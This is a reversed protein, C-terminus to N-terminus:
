KRSQKAEVRIKSSNIPFIICIVYFAHYVMRYIEEGSILYHFHARRPM